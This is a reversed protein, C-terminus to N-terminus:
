IHSGNNRLVTDPRNQPLTIDLNTSANNNRSHIPARSTLRDTSIPTNENVSSVSSHRGSATQQDLVDSGVISPTSSAQAKNSDEYLQGTVRQTHDKSLQLAVDVEGTLKDIEAELLEDKSMAKREERLRSAEKEKVKGSAEFWISELEERWGLADALKRVGSDCDSLVVVDDPRSGLDGVQELNFLLRPVGDRALQPLSAFPQVSLSTGMVIILDAM